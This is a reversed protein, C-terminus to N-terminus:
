TNHTFKPLPKGKWNNNLHSIIGFIIRDVSASNQFCSMPKTRRRVERFAREIVNTTRIKRWHAKPCSLFSLMEDLDKELCTVAGPELSRWQSAWTRFSAAAERVNQAQYISKAGALCQEQHTRRMKSALNRLKHAWCRQRKVYPYVTDLAEHLGPCGDATILALSRGELGRRYLDTLFAEWQAASEATALRFSILERVGDARIGYACLVTRKKAEAAGKVKLTVGDLFLYQYFDVLKREHFRRVEADLSRTIRSVAQASLPVELIPALVEQVRRTSVGALFMQRVIDNVRDQRRQYREIVSPAYIGERDRPVKIVDVLGFDTLLSRYRYGNRFGRRMSDREYRAVRLQEVIEEEMTEEVLRKVLMLAERKVGGWWDGEAKVEKWLDKLTLETLDKVMVM